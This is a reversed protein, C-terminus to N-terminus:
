GLLLEAYICSTKKSNKIYEELIHYVTNKERYDEKHDNPMM